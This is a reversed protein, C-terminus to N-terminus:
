IVFICLHLNHAGNQAYRMPCAVLKAIKRLLLCGGQQVQQNSTSPLSFSTNLQRGLRHWFDFSMSCIGDDPHGAVELLAEVPKIADQSGAWLWWTLGERLWGGSMCTLPSDHQFRQRMWGCIAMHVQLWPMSVQKKELFCRSVSVYTRVREMMM